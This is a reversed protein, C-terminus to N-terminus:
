LLVFSVVTMISILVILLTHPLADAIGGSSNLDFLCNVTTAVGNYTLAFPYSGSFPIPTGGCSVQPYINGNIVMGSSKQCYAQISIVFSNNVYVDACGGAAPVIYANDAAGIASGNTANQGIITLAQPVRGQLAPFTSQCTTQVSNGGVVDCTSNTSCSSAFTAHSFLAGAVTGCTQSGFYTSTVQFFTTNTTQGVAATAFLLLAAVAALATSRAMPLPLPSPPRLTKQVCNISITV